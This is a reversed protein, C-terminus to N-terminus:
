FERMSVIEEVTFLRKVTIWPGPHGVSDLFAILPVRSDIICDFKRTGRTDDEISYRKGHRLEFQLSDQEICVGGIAANAPTVTVRLWDDFSDFQEQLPVNSLWEEVRVALGHRPLRDVKIHLLPHSEM